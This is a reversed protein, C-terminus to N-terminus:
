TGTILREYGGTDMLRIAENFRKVRIYFQANRRRNAYIKKSIATGPYASTRALRQRHLSEEILLDRPLARHLKELLFGTILSICEQSSEANMM